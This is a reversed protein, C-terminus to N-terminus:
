RVCKFTKGEKELMQTIIEYPHEGQQQEFMRRIIENVRPLVHESAARKNPLFASLIREIEQQFGPKLAYTGTSSKDQQIEQTMFTLILKVMDHYLGVNKFEPLYGGMSPEPLQLAAHAWLHYEPDSDRSKPLYSLDFDFLRVHFQLANMDVKKTQILKLVQENSLNNPHPSKLTLRVLVNGGHLDYHSFGHAVYARVVTHIAKLCLNSNIYGFLPNIKSGAEKRLKSGTKRLDVYTEFGEHMETILYQVQYEKKGDEYLTPAFINTMYLQKSVKARRVMTETIKKIRKSDLEVYVSEKQNDVRLPIYHPHDQNANITLIGTDVFRVMDQSPYFPMKPASLEKYVDVERQFQKDEPLFIKISYKKAGNSVFLVIRQPPALNGIAREENYNEHVVTPPKTFTTPIPDQNAHKEKASLTNPNIPYVRNKPIMSPRTTAKKTPIRTTKHVQQIPRMEPIPPIGRTKKQARVLQNIGLRQTNAPPMTPRSMRPRVPPSPSKHPVPKPPAERKKAAGKAKDKYCCRVGKPNAKETYGTHCPPVKARGCKPKEKKDKSSEGKEKQPAVPTVKGKATSNSVNREMILSPHKRARNLTTQLWPDNSTTRYGKNWGKWPDHRPFSPELILLNWLDVKNLKSVNKLGLDSAWQKLQATSVCKQETELQKTCRRTVFDPVNKQPM